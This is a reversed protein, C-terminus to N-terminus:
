GMISVRVLAHAPSYTKRVIKRVYTSFSHDRISDFSHHRGYPLFM